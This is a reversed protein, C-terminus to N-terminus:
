AKGSALKMKRNVESLILALAKLARVHAPFNLFSMKQDFV